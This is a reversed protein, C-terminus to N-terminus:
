PFRSVTGKLKATLKARLLCVLDARTCLTRHKM